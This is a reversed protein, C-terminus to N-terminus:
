REAFRKVRRAHTDMILGTRLASMSVLWSDIDLGKALVQFILAGGLLNDAREPDMGPICLRQTHTPSRELRDVAADILATSLRQDHISRRVDRGALTNAVRALRQITGSTAVAVDFPGVAALSSKFLRELHKRAAKVRKRSVPDLGILRKSALLSGIPVSAAFQVHDDVGRALETSGGGVDVCVMSQGQLHPMGFRVGRYTLRAEDHGTILEIHVGHEDRARDILEDRNRAARLAATATARVEAHHVSAIDAFRGLTAVARDISIASLRLNRDLQGALRAPDKMRTLTEIRDPLVRALTLHISNSGIDIAAIPRRSEAATM